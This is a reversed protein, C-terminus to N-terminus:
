EFFSIEEIEDKDKPKPAGGVITATFLLYWREIIENSFEIINRKIVKFDDIEIEFGTEEIAERKAGEIFSETEYVRGQPLVFREGGRHRVGAMLGDKNIIQLVVEGKCPPYDEKYFIDNLHLEGEFFRPPNYIEFM